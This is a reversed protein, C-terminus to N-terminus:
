VQRRNRRLFVAGAALLAAMGPLPVQAPATSQDLVWRGTGICPQDVCLSTYSGQGETWIEFTWENATGYGTSTGATAFYLYMSGEISDGIFRIDFEAADEGPPADASWGAGKLHPAMLFVRAERVPADSYDSYDGADWQVRGSLWADDTVIMNAWGPNPVSADWEFNYVVDAWAPTSCVLAASLLFKKM